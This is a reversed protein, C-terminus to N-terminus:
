VQILTTSMTDWDCKIGHITTGFFINLTYDPLKNKLLNDFFETFKEWSDPFIRLFGKSPMCRTSNIM